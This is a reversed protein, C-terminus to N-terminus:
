PEGLLAGFTAAAALMASAVVPLTTARRRLEASHEDPDSAAAVREVVGAFVLAIAIPVAGLAVYSHSLLAISCLSVLLVDHALTRADRGAAIVDLFGFSALCGAVAIAVGLAGGGDLSLLEAARYSAFSVAAAVSIVLLAGEAGIRAGVRRRTIPGGRRARAIARGARLTPDDYYRGLLLVIVSGIAAAIAALALWAGRGLPRAWWHSAAIVALMGVMTSVAFGRITSADAGEGEDARVSLAGVVLAIAALLTLLPGLAILASAHFGHFSAANRMVVLACASTITATAVAILPFPDGTPSALLTGIAAGLAFAFLLVSIAALASARTVMLLLVATTTAVITLPAVTSWALGRLSSARLGHERVASSLLAGGIGVVFAGTALLARGRLAADFVGGFRLILFGLLTALFGLAVRRRDVRETRAADTRGLVIAAVGNLVAVVLVFGLEAM